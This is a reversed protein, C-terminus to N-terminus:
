VKVDFSEELKNRIVESVTLEGVEAVRKISEAMQLSVRVGIFDTLKEAQNKLNYKKMEMKTYIFLQFLYINWSEM